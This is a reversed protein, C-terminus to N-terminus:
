HPRLFSAPYKGQTYATILSPYSTNHAFFCIFSNSDPFIAPYTHVYGSHRLAVKVCFEPWGRSSIRIISGIRPSLWIVLVYSPLDHMMISVRYWLAWVGMRWFRSVRWVRNYMSSDLWMLLSRRRQPRHRAVGGYGPRCFLCIRYSFLFSLNVCRSWVRSWCGHEM